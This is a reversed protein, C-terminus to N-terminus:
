LRFMIAVKIKGIGEKGEELAEDYNLQLRFM